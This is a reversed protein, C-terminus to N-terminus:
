KTKIHYNQNLFKIFDDYARDDVYKCNNITKIMTGNRGKHLLRGEWKSISIIHDINVMAIDTKTIGNKKCEKQWGEDYSFTIKILKM